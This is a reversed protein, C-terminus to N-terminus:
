KTKAKELANYISLSQQIYVPNKAAKFVTSWFRGDAQYLDKQWRIDGILARSCVVSGTDVHNIAVTGGIRKTGNKNAQDFHIFDNELAEISKYLDPHLTTDDDLFYIYGKSIQDLAFNRQGNGVASDDPHYFIRVNRPFKIKVIPETGDVIIWWTHSTIPINISKLITPLNEPRSCATVINLHMNYGLHKQYRYGDKFRCYHFVYIGRMVLIPWQKELVAHSIATDISEITENKVAKEVRSRILLWKEKQIVMLHGTINKQVPKIELPMKEAHRDAVAKHFLISDSLHDGDKPLLYQYANRSAYCTFIGTGPYADIYKQIHHGFDSRLFAIDGDMIVAYDKPDTILEM